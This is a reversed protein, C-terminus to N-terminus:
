NSSTTTSTTSASSSSSTTSSLSTGAAKASAAAAKQSASVSLDKQYDSLSKAYIGAEMDVVQPAKVQKAISPYYPLKDAMQSLSVRVQNGDSMQIAIFDPTATTPTKTVKTILAKLSPTLSEYASVFTKVEADTFNVLLPLGKIQAATAATDKVVYGNSLVLYTSKNQQVAAVTTYEVIKLQVKNPFAFSIKSSEVRPFQAEIKQNIKAQNRYISYISDGTKLGSTTAIQEATEHTNGIVSFAGIKSIPSIFYLASLFVVASILLPLWMKKLIPGYVKERKVKENAAEEEDDYQAQRAMTQSHFRAYAEDSDDSDDLDEFAEAEDDYYPADEDYFDESDDDDDSEFAEDDDEEMEDTSVAEDEEEDAEDERYDSYFAEFAAEEGPLNSFENAEDADTSDSDDKLSENFFKTVTFRDSTGRNPHEVTKQHKYALDKNDWPTRNNKEESM